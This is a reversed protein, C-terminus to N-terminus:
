RLKGLMIGLGIGYYVRKKNLQIMPSSSLGFYKTIPFEIKPNIIFSMTNHKRYSYTYNEGLYIWAEHDVFQWNEPEKIISYGVGFSINARITGKKNLKYIKGFDIRYNLFHDFPNETALGILGNLGASYDKPQSKPKKVNGSFGVKLSYKNKFIYNFAYDVGFYNGLNVESTLYYTDKEKNQASILQSGLIILILLLKNLKM